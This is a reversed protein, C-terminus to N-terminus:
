RIIQQESIFQHDVAGIYDSPKNSRQQLLQALILRDQIEDVNIEKYGSAIIEKYNKPQRSNNGFLRVDVGIYNNDNRTTQAQQVVGLAVRSM